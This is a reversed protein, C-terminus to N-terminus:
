MYRSGGHVVNKSVEAPEETQVNEKLLSLVLRTRTIEGRIFGQNDSVANYFRHYDGLIISKMVDRLVGKQDEDMEEFIKKIQPMTFRDSRLDDLYFEEAMKHIEDKTYPDQDLDRTDEARIYGFKSLINKLYQM